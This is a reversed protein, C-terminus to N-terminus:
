EMDCREEEEGDSSEESQSEEIALQDRRELEAEVLRATSDLLKSLNHLPEQAWDGFNYKDVYEPPSVVEILLGTDTGCVEVAKRIDPVVERLVGLRSKSRRMRNLVAKFDQAAIKPTVSVVCCCL